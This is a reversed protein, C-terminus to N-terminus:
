AHAHSPSRDSTLLLVLWRCLFASLGTLVCLSGLVQPSTAVLWFIRGIGAVLQGLQLLEVGARIVLGPLTSIAALLEAPEILTLLSGMWPLLFACAVGTLLLAAATSIRAARGLDAVAPLLGARLLVRDAFGRGPEPGPLSAFLGFLAEEVASDSDARREAELWRRLNHHPDSYSM